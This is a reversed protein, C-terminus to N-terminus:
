NECDEYFAKYRAAFDKAAETVVSGEHMNNEESAFIKFGLGTETERIISRAHSNSIGMLSFATKLAGTEGVLRILEQIGPGYYSSEKRVTLKFGPRSEKHLALKGAIREADAPGTVDASVGEDDVETKEWDNEELLKEYDGDTEILADFFRSSVLIPYGRKGQYVPAALAAGTGAIRKVTPIDFLSYNSPALLLRHSAPVTRADWRGM